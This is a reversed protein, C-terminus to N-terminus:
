HGLPGANAALPATVTMIVVAATKEPASPNGESADQLFFV